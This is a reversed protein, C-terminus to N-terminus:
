RMSAWKRWKVSRGFKLKQAIQAQKHESVFEKLLTGLEWIPLWRWLRGILVWSITILWWTVPQGETLKPRSTYVLLLPTQGSAARQKGEAPVNLSSGLQSCDYEPDSTMHRDPKACHSTSQCCPRSCWRGSVARLASPTDAAREQTSLHVRGPQLNWVLTTKISLYISNIFHSYISFTVTKKLKWFTWM